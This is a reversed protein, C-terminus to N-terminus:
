KFIFDSLEEVEKFYYDCHERMYAEIEPVQQGWGAGAINIGSNRSMELGPKLDDVMLIEEREIDFKELIQEVPWASPKRKAPDYDWGFIIDPAAGDGNVKYHREINDAESHSVVAVIGGRNQFTKVLDTIGSFFHPNANENHRRWITYEEKIEEDTFGLEDTFYEMVGPDFNKRFWDDVSVPELDPRIQRITEVHAPYHIEATSSVSTDDHDLILCKYKM